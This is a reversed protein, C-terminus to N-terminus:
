KRLRKEGGDDVKKKAYKKPKTVVQADEDDDNLNIAKSDRTRLADDSIANSKRKGTRKPKKLAPLTGATEPEDAIGM